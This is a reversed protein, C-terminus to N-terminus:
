LLSGRISFFDANRIEPLEYDCKPTIKDLQGCLINIHRDYNVKGADSNLYQRRTERGKESEAYKKTYARQKEKNNKRWERAYEAADFAM